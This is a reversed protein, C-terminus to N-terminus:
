LVPAAILASLLNSPVAGTADCQVAGLLGQALPVNYTLQHYRNGMNDVLITLLCADYVLYVNHIEPGSMEHVSLTWGDPLVVDGMLADWEDQSAPLGGPMGQMAWQTGWEDTIVYYSSSGETPEYQYESCNGPAPTDESFGSSPVPYAGTCLLQGIVMWSANYMSWGTVCAGPSSSGDCSAWNNYPVSTNWCKSKFAPVKFVADANGTWPLTADGLAAFDEYTYGETPFSGLQTYNLGNTIEVASDATVGFMEEATACNTLNVPGAAVLPANSGSGGVAEIWQGRCTGTAALLLLVLAIPTHRLLMDRSPQTATDRLFQGAVETNHRMLEAKLSRAASHAAAAAGTDFAHLLAAAYSGQEPQEVAEEDEGEVEGLRRSRRKSHRQQQRQRKSRLDAAISQASISALAVPDREIAGPPTNYAFLAPRQLYSYAAIVREETVVPTGVHIAAALTSSSKNMLYVDSRPFATLLARCRTLLAYYDKYELNSHKHVYPQLAEPCALPPADLRESGVLLLKEKRRRLQALVAPHSAAAFAAAYDRRFPEITGQICLHKLQDAPVGGDLSKSPVLPPLWPVEVHPIAAPGLTGSWTELLSRTYNSVFPALTAPQMRTLPLAQGATGGMTLNRPVRLVAHQLVLATLPPMRLLHDPNHLVLLQRQFPVKAAAAVLKLQEPLEMPGEPFTAFVVVDFQPLDGLMAAPDRYDGEFWEENLVQFAWAMGAAVDMHYGVNNYVACRQQPQKGAKADKGSASQQEQVATGGGAEQQEEQEMTPPEKAQQQEQKKEVAPKSNQQEQEKGELHPESSHQEAALLTDNPASRQVQLPQTPYENAAEEDLVKPQQLHLAATTADRQPQPQSQEGEPQRPREHQMAQTAAAVGSGAREVVRGSFAANRQAATEEQKQREAPAQSAADQQRSSADTSAGTLPVAAPQLRKGLLFGPKFGSSARGKMSGSAGSGVRSGVVAQTGPVAAPQGRTAAQQQRKAGPAASAAAAAEAAASTEAAPGSSAAEGQQWLAEDVELADMRQMLAEFSDQSGAETSGAEEADSGSGGEKWDFAGAGAATAADAARGARDGTSHERIDVVEKGEAQGDPASGAADLKAGLQELAAKLAALQEPTHSEVLQPVQSKDATPAM